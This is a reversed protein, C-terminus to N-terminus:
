IEKNDSANVFHCGIGLFGKKPFCVQNTVLITAIRNGQLDKGLKLSVSGCLVYM